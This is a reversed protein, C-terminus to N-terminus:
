ANSWNRVLRPAGRAARSSKPSDFAWAMRSAKLMPVKPHAGYDEGFEHVTAFISEFLACPEHLGTRGRTASGTAIESFSDKANRPAHVLDRSHYAGM